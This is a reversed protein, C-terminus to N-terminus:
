SVCVCVVWWGLGGFQAGLFAQFVHPCLESGAVSGSIDPGPLSALGDALCGARCLCM